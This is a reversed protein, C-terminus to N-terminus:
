GLQGKRRDPVPIGILDDFEDRRRRITARIDFCDLISFDAM